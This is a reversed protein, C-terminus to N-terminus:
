SMAETRIQSIQLKQQKLINILKHKLEAKELTQQRELDTHGPFNFTHLYVSLFCVCPICFHVM